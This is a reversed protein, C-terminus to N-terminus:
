SKYARELEQIDIKKMELMAAMVKGSKVPDPDSLLKGLAEPVVQWTIGFKDFNIWGCQGTEGGNGLKEWFYDVEEQTKCDIVFSIAGSFDFDHAAASDMVVFQQGELVFDAYMITGEKNPPNETGYRSIDGIEANEFISVYFKMAEEAKGAYERAFMLSPVIKQKPVKNSFILQWSVGYKDQIWAYRESFPYADLPMLAKGGDSLATYLTDVEEKKQCHVMFSIAPTLKFHPGGNLASFRQGEIEFEVVMVSGAPKGSAEEAEKPFHSIDLIKSKEFISVYFNAAEEAQTDFWLFPTIKQM